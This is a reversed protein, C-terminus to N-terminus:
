GKKIAGIASIQSVFARIAKIASYKIADFRQQDSLVSNAVISFDYSGTTIYTRSVGNQVFEINLVIIARYAVIYGNIDYQIPKYTLDKIFIHIHSNAQEKSTLSTHFVEKISSDLADKILVTNEPDQMSIHVTTSVKNGVIDRAFKASAKYGCANFATLIVFMVIYSYVRV